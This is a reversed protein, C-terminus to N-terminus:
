GRHVRGQCDRGRLFFHGPPGDGLSPPGDSRAQALLAWMDGSGDRPYLGRVCSWAPLECENRGSREPAWRWRRGSLVLSGGEALGHPDCPSRAGLVLQATGGPPFLYRTVQEFKRDDNASTRQREDRDDSLKDSLLDGSQGTNTLSRQQAQLASTVDRPAHRDGRATM